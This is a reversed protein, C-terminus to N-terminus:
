QRKSVLRVGEALEVGVSAGLVSSASAPVNRLTPVRGASVADGGGGQSGGVWRWCEVIAFFVADGRRAGNEAWKRHAAAEACPGCPMYTWM